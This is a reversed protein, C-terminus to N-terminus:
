GERTRGTLGRRAELAADEIRVRHMLLAANAVSFLLAVQWADFALPLIAIELAVIVYNPHRCWRYPGTTVLPADALTIVRTTWYSGLTAIVWVRASQLVLFLTLLPWNPPQEAPVTVALMALWAVHLLVIVPYQDRGHEVAGAAMLHRTNREAIALEIVRQVAVLAVVLHIWGLTM